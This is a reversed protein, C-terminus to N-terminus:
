DICRAVVFRLIINFNFFVKILFAEVTLRLGQPSVTRANLVCSASIIGQQAVCCCLIFLAQEDTRSHAEQTAGENAHSSAM